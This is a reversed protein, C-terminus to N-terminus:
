AANRATVNAILAQDGRVTARMRRTAFDEIGALEQAAAAIKANDQMRTPRATETSIVWRLRNAHQEVGDPGGHTNFAALARSAEACAAQRDAPTSAAITTCWDEVQGTRCTNETVITVHTRFITLWITHGSTTVAPVPGHILHSETATQTAGNQTM